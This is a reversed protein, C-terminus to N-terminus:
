HFTNKKDEDKYLACLLNFDEMNNVTNRNSDINHFDYQKIIM